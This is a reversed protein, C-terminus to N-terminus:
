TAKREEAKNSGSTLLMKRAQMFVTLMFVCGIAGHFAIQTVPLRTLLFQGAFIFLISGMLSGLGAGGIYLAYHLVHPVLIKKALLVSGWGLWFPIQAPNVAMLLFGFFFPPLNDSMGVIGAPGEEQTARFFSIIAMGILIFLSVWQLMKVIIELKM